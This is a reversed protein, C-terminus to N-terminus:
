LVIGSQTVIKWSLINIRAGLYYLPDEPGEPKLIEEHNGPNWIGHGVREFKSISLKYWHNRVVGYYGEVAETQTATAALHEIPVYYVCLGGDYIIASNKDEPQASILQAELDSIAKTLTEGSIPQADDAIKGDSDKQYLQLTKLKEKNLYIKTAGTRTLNKISNLEFVDTGIQVFKVENQSTTTKIWLNIKQQADNIRNIIYKIYEEKLYLLGNEGRVLDLGKGNGNCIQGFVVAHTAYRCDIAANSNDPVINSGETPATYNGFIYQPKNTNENCYAFDYKTKTRGEAGFACMNTYDNYVISKLEDDNVKLDTNYRYALDNPQQGYSTSLGWYSRSNTVDNWSGNNGWDFTWETNINKFMYSDPATANLNWGIVRLYVDKGIETPDNENNNIGGAITAKALKYYTVGDIVKTEQSTEPAISIEAKAALREVYVDVVNEKKKADEAKTQYKEQPIYTAFYCPQGNVINQHVGETNESYSSTSMVFFNSFQNTTVEEDETPENGKKTLNKYYKALKSETESLNNGAVFDPANLVTLMYSPYKDSETREKLVVVNNKNIYEINNDKDTEPDFTIEEGNEPDIANGECVFIGKEDFFFFKAYKVKHENEFGDKWVESDSDQFGPSSTSRSTNEANIIKVSLYAGEGTMQPNDPQGKAPEDSSCATMAGLLAVSALFTFLKKM